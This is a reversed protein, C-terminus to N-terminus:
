TRPHILNRVSTSNLPVVSFENGPIDETSGSKSTASVGSSSESASKTYVINASDQASIDKMGTDRREREESEKLLFDIWLDSFSSQM